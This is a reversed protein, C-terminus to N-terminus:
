AASEGEKSRLKACSMRKKVLTKSPFQQMPLSQGCELAIQRLNEGSVTTLDFQALRAM